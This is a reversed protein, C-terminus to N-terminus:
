KIRNVSKSWNREIGSKKGTEGIIHEELHFDHKLNTM